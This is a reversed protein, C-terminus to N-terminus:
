FHNDLGLLSQGFHNDLGLFRDDLSVVTTWALLVHNVGVLSDDQGIKADLVM